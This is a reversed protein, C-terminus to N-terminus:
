RLRLRPNLLVYGVDSILQTLLVVVVSVVSCAMVMNFDMNTSAVFLAQGFGKYAFMVEVIVVGTLMWPFQLMIVTFPAILANRLAHRMIVTSRPLGKLIATRVYQSNMVEAMSARTMRAIYGVGYIVMTLVPLFLDDFSLGDRLNAVAKFYFDDLYVWQGTSIMAPIDPINHFIHYKRSALLVMFLIGSIYEPTATTMIAFSSISRDRISGEKVGALVGLLLAVPVMIAFVWFALVGTYYLRENIVGWQNRDLSADYGFIHRRFVSSTGWDGVVFGSLWEGYRVVLPKTLINDQVWSDLDEAPTQPGLENIAITRLTNNNTNILTFITATLVLITVFALLLRRIAFVFM